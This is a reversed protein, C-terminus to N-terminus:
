GVSHDSYGLRIIKTITVDVTVNWSLSIDLHGALVGTGSVTFQKGNTGPYGEVEKADGSVMSDPWFPNNLWARVATDAVYATVRIVGTTANPISTVNGVIGTAKFNGGVPISLDDLKGSYTLGTEQDPVERHWVAYLTVPSEGMVLSSLVSDAAATDRRWGVFQWGSKEPTFTKPSLCSAGEDVEEQYTNGNCIYTCTSGSSYIKTSGLYVKSVKTDGIYIKNKKTGINIPM